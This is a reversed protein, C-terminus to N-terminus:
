GPGAEHAALARAQAAELTPHRLFDADNGLYAGVPGIGAFPSREPHLMREVGAADDSLGLARCVAPLEEAPAAILREVRVTVLRDAPLEGLFALLGDRAARVEEMDPAELKRALTEEEGDRVFRVFMADPYNDRIRKLSEPFLSYSRSPDLLRLPAVMRRLEEFLRPTSWMMHRIMWRRAMDITDITQEGAHLHALMRQMGHYQTEMFRLYLSIDELTDAVFLNLEPAGFCEPHRGIMAAAAPSHSGPLAVTFIPPGAPAPEPALPAADPNQSTQSISM